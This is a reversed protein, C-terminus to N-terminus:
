NESVAGRPSIEISKESNDNQSQITWTQGSFDGGNYGYVNGHPITFYIEASSFSPTELKIQQPLSFSELSVCGNGSGCHLFDSNVNQTECSQEASNKPIYYLTYDTDSLFRMGYGCPANGGSAIRGSLAYSQALKVVSAVERQSVKLNNVNKSSRLFLTGLVVFIGIIAMVLLLEILTFGAHKQYNRFM